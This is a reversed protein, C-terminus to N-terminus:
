AVARIPIPILHPVVPYPTERVIVSSSPSVRPVTVVAPIVVVTPVVVIAPIVPTSPVPV